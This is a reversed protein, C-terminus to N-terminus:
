PRGGRKKTQLEQLYETQERLSKKAEMSRDKHQLYSMNLNLSYYSGVLLVDFQPIVSM